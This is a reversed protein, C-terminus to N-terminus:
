YMQKEGNLYFGETVGGSIICGYSPEYRRYDTGLMTTVGPNERSHQKAYLKAEAGESIPFFRNTLDSFVQWSEYTGM